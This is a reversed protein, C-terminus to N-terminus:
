HTWLELDKETGKEGSFSLSVIYSQRISVSGAYNMICGDGRALDFAVKKGDYMDEYLKVIDPYEQMAHSNVAKIRYHVKALPIESVSTGVVNHLYVKKGLIIQRVSHVDIADQQFSLEEAFQGLQTGILERGFIASFAKTLAIVGPGISTVAHMSDTDMYLM